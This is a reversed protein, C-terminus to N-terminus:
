VLRISPLVLRGALVEPLGQDGVALSESFLGTSFSKRIFAWFSTFRFLRSRDKSVLGGTRSVPLSCELFKFQDHRFPAPVACIVFAFAGDRAEWFFIKLM